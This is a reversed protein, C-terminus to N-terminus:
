LYQGCVPWSGSGSQNYLKTAITIQQERSALDARAAYAGGGEGLWTSESFQLGGYFGNGTNIHWNGGSECSAVADWNLGNNTVPPAPSQPQPQQKPQQKPQPRPKIGVKEVQTTPQSLVRKSLLTKSALKADVYVLKYTIKRSGAQGATVVSTDGQYMSSDNHRIVAYDIRQRDTVLKTRVRQLVIRLGATVDTSSAPRLRDQPRVAVNLNGLLQAVTADTTMVKQKTGDHVVVVRKPARLELSTAGLPLRRSRSVSVFDASSYGLAALAKAVTPATTWVATRRGDVNLRLLRGRKLVVTEGAKLASDASPAVLDHSSLAYGAAQLAGAVDHATTSIKSSKGDVVLTVSRSTKGSSAFAVTAAVTAGALVVGYLGYKVSRRV